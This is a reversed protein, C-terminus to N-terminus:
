FMGSMLADGAASMVLGTLYSKFILMVVLGAALVVALTMWFAINGDAKTCAKVAEYNLMVWCIFIGLFIASAFAISVFSVITALLYGASPVITTVCVVSVVSLIDVDSKKLKAFAFIVAMVVAEGVVMVLALKLGLMFKNGLVYEAVSPVRLLILLVFVLFYVAGSLFAPIHNPEAAEESVATMPSKLAKLILTWLNGAHKKTMEAYDTPAAEPQANQWQQAGQEWQQADQEWQQANQQEWQQANQQEWQQANQQEWQQARANQSQPCDCQGNVLEKGCYSCYKAM